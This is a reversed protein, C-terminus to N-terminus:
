GKTVSYTASSDCILRLHAAFSIEQGNLWEMADVPFRDRALRHRM